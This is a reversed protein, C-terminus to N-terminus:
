PLSVQSRAPFQLRCNSKQYINSCFWGVIAPIGMLLTNVGLVTVGGFQLLIAQLLLSIFICVFALPGLLIGALGALMLHLSTPPMPIKFMCAVFLAATVVAVQPVKENINSMERKSLSVSAILLLAALIWGAILVWTPLVGDSIHM